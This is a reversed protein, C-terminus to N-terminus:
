GLLEAVTRIAGSIDEDGVHLRLVTRGADKLAQWDGLAQSTKLIGFSISSERSGAEDPIPIEESNECTIQIFLGNGADGKHLQGTSHLFRPGYGLTTAVHYRDRIIMRLNDLESDIQESPMVYAQIAVYSGKTIAGLLGSLAQELTEAQLEGYVSINKESLIPALEPLSGTERYTNMATRSLTKASEVNPQDFPNIELVHGAVAVAMEWLFFQGGLDYPDHLSIQVVPFGERILARIKNDYTDDGNIRLLVFLRDDGYQGPFGLQEHVIPVIGKREKGTSEAILQEVWDGFAEIQKSFVFTVKDRGAKAMEGLIVGLRAGYNNGQVPCTSSECNEAMILTRDLLRELDMGILAAPVLGFYSLASFRGGISPDNLFTKRFRYKEAIAVLPTDPDTIAIFHEGAKGSGLVDRTRNYFYRFFSLTETTTGSKTSVIFLTKEPDLMESFSRVAGPDTSDLVHLDIHGPSVGFISRLIEPALSSGGMGMLLAHTYGQSSLDRAFEEIEEGAGTMIEPIQLWGLRNTIEDPDPKWVSHDHAWIRAMITQEKLRELADSINPQYRGLNESMQHWKSILERRKNRISMMLSEFSAAFSKVGERELNDTVADLDIGLAGLRNVQSHASSLDNALTSQATGHDLFAQLTAPPVTNITHPGILEDVYLTDPYTPDKTGTSAWLLRQVRAGRQALTKWRTSSFIRTFFEYAIKANAIAIKGQLETNGISELASDLSTDVRSVFFSAVSAISSLDKGSHLHKELGSIYAWAAEEYRKVSFLLTVNVNIGEAILTEIAPIGQKTAPVKIMVNPRDLTRFLRRAEQITKETDYALTPSVEISVYGDLGDTSEYLTRFLDATHAIDWLVLTEYIERITKGAAVLNKLDEDYDISGAIAKEFITPNSTVGRIGQDILSTLEGSTILSRRIYDFWAAQGLNALEHLKTM